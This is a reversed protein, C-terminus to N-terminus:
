EYFKNWKESSQIRSSLYSHRNWAATPTTPQHSKSSTLASIGIKLRGKHSEDPISYIYIVGNSFIEHIEHSNKLNLM